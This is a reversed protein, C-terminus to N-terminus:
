ESIGIMDLYAILIPETLEGIHVKQIVGDADIFVSTPFGRVQYLEAVAYDTDLLFMMTYGQPEVFSRVDEATEAGDVALVVFDGAYQDQYQQILPLEARCPPCWTAWFNVLLPTGSYDALSVPNGDLDSLTFDPAYDVEGQDEEATLVEPEATPDNVVEDEVEADVDADTADSITETPQDEATPALTNGTLQLVVLVGLIIVTLILAADLYWRKKEV